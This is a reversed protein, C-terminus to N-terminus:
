IEDCFFFRRIVNFRASALPRLHPWECIPDLRDGRGSLLEGHCTITQEVVEDVTDAVRETGRQVGGAVGELHNAVADAVGEVFDNFLGDRAM